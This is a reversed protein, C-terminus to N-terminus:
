GANPWRCPPRGTGCGIEVVHDGPSLRALRVLDDFMRPPGVPRTRQYAEADADVGAPPAHRESEPAPYRILRILM